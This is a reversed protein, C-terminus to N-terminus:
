CRRAVPPRPKIARRFSAVRRSGVNGDNDLIGVRRKSIRVIPPGEGCACLRQLTRVTFGARKAFEPFSLVRM